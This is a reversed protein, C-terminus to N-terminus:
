VLRNINKNFRQLKKPPHQHNVFKKCFTTTIKFTFKEKESAAIFYSVFELVKETGLM